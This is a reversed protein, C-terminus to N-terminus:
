MARLIHGINGLRRPAEDDPAYPDHFFLFVDVVTDPAPPGATAGGMPGAGRREAIADRARELCVEFCYRTSLLEQAERVREVALDPRSLIEERAAEISDARERETKGGFYYVLDGFQERVH